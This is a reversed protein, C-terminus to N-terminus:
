KKDEKDIFFNDDVADNILDTYLITKDENISRELAIKKLTNVKWKKMRFTINTNENKERQGELMSEITKPSNDLDLNIPPASTDLIEDKKVVRKSNSEKEFTKKKM